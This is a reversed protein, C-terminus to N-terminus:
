KGYVNYIYADGWGRFQIAIYYEGELESIDLEWLTANESTQKVSKFFTVGGTEPNLSKTVGFYGGIRPDGEAYFYLTNLNTLNIKEKTTARLNNDAYDYNYFRIYQKSFDVQSQDGEAYRDWINNSGEGSRFWYTITNCQIWENNLYIKTTKEVWSDNIYQQVKVLYVMIPNDKTISFAVSSSQGILFWVLGQQAAPETASFTWSTIEEDTAIWIMKEKPNAPETLGDVIIFNLAATANSMSGSNTRGIM